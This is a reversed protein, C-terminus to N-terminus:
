SLFPRFIWDTRLTLWSVGNTGGFTGGRSTWGRSGLTLHSVPVPPVNLIRNEVSGVSRAHFVIGLLTSNWFTAYAAPSSWHSAVLFPHYRFVVLGQFHSSVYSRSQPLKM